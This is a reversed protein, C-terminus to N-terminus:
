RAARCAFTFEGTTSSPASVFSPVFDASGDSAGRCAAAVHVAQDGLAPSQLFSRFPAEFGVIASLRPANTGRAPDLSPGAPALRCFVDAATDTTVPGTVRDGPCVLVWLPEDCINLFAVAIGGPRLCATRGADINEVARAFRLPGSAPDDAPALSVLHGDRVAVAVADALRSGRRQLFLVWERLLDAVPDGERPSFGPSSSVGRYDTEPNLAVRTSDFRTVALVNAAARSDAPGPLAPPRAGGSAFGLHRAEPDVRAVLATELTTLPTLHLWQSESALATGVYVEANPVGRVSGGSARVSCIRQAERPLTVTYLGSQDTSARFEAGDACRLDVAAGSVAAERVVFGSVVVTDPPACCLSLDIRDKCGTLVLAFPLAFGAFRCFQM